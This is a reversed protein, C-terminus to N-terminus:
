AMPVFLGKQGGRALRYQLSVKAAEVRKRSLEASEPVIEIGVAPIGLEVCAVLSSGSGCAPDLVRVIGQHAAVLISYLRVPKQCVHFRGAAFNSQPRPVVIVGHYWPM